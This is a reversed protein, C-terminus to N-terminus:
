AARRGACEPGLGRAISEPVTLKRGCASCRGDHWVEMVDPMEGGLIVKAFFWAFAKAGPADAGVKSKRGHVYALGDGRTYDAVHGIYTYGRENDPDTLLSVFHTVPGPPSGDAPREVSRVRYTFRTGTKTSVLTVHANGALLYAKVDEASTMRGPTVAGNGNAPPPAEDYFDSM